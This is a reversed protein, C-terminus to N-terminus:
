RARARADRTEGGQRVSAPRAAGELLVRTALARTQIALNPAGRAPRLYAAAAGHRWRQAHNLQYYGVGEPRGGNFDDNAARRDRARGAVFAQSLRADRPHRRVNLPGGDGHYASRRARQNEAKPLVAARRRLGLGTASARGATSTRWPRARLDDRLDGRQWGLGERAALCHAPWRPAAGARDLPGLRAASGPLARYAAPQAIRPDDDPGGAEIVLVRVAPNESLRSALVSGAAGAGVIVYDASPQPPAPRCNRPLLSLVALTHMGSSYGAGRREKHGIRYLLRFADRVLLCSAATPAPSLDRSSARTSADRSASSAHTRSITAHCKSGAM